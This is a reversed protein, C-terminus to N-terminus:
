AHALANIIEEALVYTSNFLRRRMSNLMGSLDFVDIARGFDFDILHVTGSPIASNKFKCDPSVNSHDISVAWPSRVAVTL